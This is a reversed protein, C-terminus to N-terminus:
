RRRLRFILHILCGNQQQFLRSGARHDPLSIIRENILTILPLAHRAAKKIKGRGLAAPLGLPTNFFDMFKFASM